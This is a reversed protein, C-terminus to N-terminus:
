ERKKRKAQKKLRTALLPEPPKWLFHDLPPLKDGKKKDRPLLRNIERALHAQIWNQWGFGHPHRRLYAQWSVFEQASM